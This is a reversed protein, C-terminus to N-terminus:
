GFNIGQLKLEIQNLAFIAEQIGGYPNTLQPTQGTAVAFGVAFATVVAPAFQTGPAIMRRLMERKQATIEQLLARVETEAQTHPMLEPLQYPLHEMDAVVGTPEFSYDVIEAIDYRVEAIASANLALQYATNADVEEWSCWPQWLRM